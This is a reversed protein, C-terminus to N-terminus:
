WIVALKDALTLINQSQGTNQEQSVFVGGQKNKIKRKKPPPELGAPGETFSKGLGAPCAQGQSLKVYGIILFIFFLPPPYKHEMLLIRSEALIKLYHLLEISQCISGDAWLFYFYRMWKEYCSFNKHLNEKGILMWYM